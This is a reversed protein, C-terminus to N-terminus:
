TATREASTILIRCTDNDHNRYGRGARTTPTITTEAVEAKANTARSVIVTEIHSWWRDPTGKPRTTETMAAWTVYADFTSKETAATELDTYALIRRRVQTVMDDALKVLHFRDVTIKVHPLNAIIASSFAASPDMVVVEFQEHWWPPQRERWKTVITGGRGPVAELVRGATLDTFAMPWRESHRWQRGDPLTLDRSGSVSRFRHEGSGVHPVVHPTVARPNRVEHAHAVVQRHVSPWSVGFAAAGGSVSRTERALGEVPCRFPGAATRFRPIIPESQERFTSRLCQPEGCWYRRKRWVVRVEGAIPEQRVRCATVRHMRTSVVGGMFRGAETVGAGITVTRVGEDDVAVDSTHFRPLDFSRSAAEPDCSYHFM